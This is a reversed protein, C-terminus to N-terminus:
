VRYFDDSRILLSQGPQLDLSYRVLVRAWKDLLTQDPTEQGLGVLAMQGFLLGLFIFVKIKNM